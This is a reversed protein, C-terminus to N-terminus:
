RLALFHRLIKRQSQRINSKLVVLNSAIAISLWAITLKRKNKGTNSRLSAISLQYPQHHRVSTMQMPPSPTPPAGKCHRSSFRAGSAAPPGAVPTGATWKAHVDGAILL